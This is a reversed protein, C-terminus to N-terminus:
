KIIYLSIIYFSIIYMTHLHICHIRFICHIYNLRKNIKCNYWITTYIWARTTANQTILIPKQNQQLSDRIWQIHVLMYLLRTRIIMIIISILLSLLCSLIKIAGLITAYITAVPPTPSINTTESTTSAYRLLYTLSIM